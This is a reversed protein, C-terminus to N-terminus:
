NNNDTEARMIEVAREDVEDMDCLVELAYLRDDDDGAAMLADWASQIDDDGNYVGPEIAYTEPTIGAVEAAALRHTGTLAHVVEGTDIVLVPLGRWGNATMDAAIAAVKDADRVDHLPIIKM